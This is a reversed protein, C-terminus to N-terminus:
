EFDNHLHRPLLKTFFFQPFDKKCLQLIFFRVPPLVAAPADFFKAAFRFYVFSPPLRHSFFTDNGLRRFSPFFTSTSTVGSGTCEPCSFLGM